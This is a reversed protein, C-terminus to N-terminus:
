QQISHARIALPVRQIRHLPTLERWAFLVSENSFVKISPCISPLFLPRCLILHNSPMLLEISMLKLLGRSNTLSLSAQGAATRPTEFLQVCSFSQILSFLISPSGLHSLPLSDQLAPSLASKIPNSGQTPFIGPSPFPLGSWYEQSPFGM